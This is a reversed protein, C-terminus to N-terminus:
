LCFRWWYQAPHKSQFTVMCLTFICLILFLNTVSIGLLKILVWLAMILSAILILFFEYMRNFKWYTQFSNIFQAPVYYQPSLVIVNLEIALKMLCIHYFIPLKMPNLGFSYNWLFYLNLSTNTSSSSLTNHSHFVERLSMARNKVRVYLNM